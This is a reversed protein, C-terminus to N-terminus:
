IDFFLSDPSPCQADPLGAGFPEAFVRPPQTSLIDYWEDGSVLIYHRLAEADVGDYYLEQDKLCDCFYRTYRCQLALIPRRHPLGTRELFCGLEEEQALSLSNSRMRFGYLTDQPFRVWLSLTLPTLNTGNHYHLLLGRRDVRVEELYLLPEEPSLNPTLCYPETTLQPDQEPFTFADYM